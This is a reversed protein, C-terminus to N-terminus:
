AAGSKTRPLATAMKLTWMATKTDITIAGSTELVTLEGRIEWASMPTKTDRLRAGVDAPAFAHQGAAALSQIADLVLETRRSSM